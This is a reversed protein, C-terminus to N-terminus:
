SNRVRQTREICANIIDGWTSKDDVRRVDNILNNTLARELLSILRLRENISNCSNFSNLWQTFSM